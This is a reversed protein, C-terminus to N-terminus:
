KAINGVFDASVLCSFLLQPTEVSYLNVMSEIELVVNLFKFDVFNPFSWMLISYVRTSKSTNITSLSIYVFIYLLGCICFILDDCDDRHNSHATNKSCKQSSPYQVGFFITGTCSAGLM